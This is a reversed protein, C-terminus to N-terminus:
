DKRLPATRARVALTTGTALTLMLMVMIAAIPFLSISAVNTSNLTIATPGMVVSEANLTSPGDLAPEFVAVSWEYTGPAASQNIYGRISAQYVMPGSPLGSASYQVAVQEAFTFCRGSRSFTARNGNGYTMSFSAPPTMIPVGNSVPYYICMSTNGDNGADITANIFVNIKYGAPVETPLIGFGTVGEPTAEAATVTAVGAFALLALATLQMIIRKM